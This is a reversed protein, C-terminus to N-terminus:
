YLKIFSCNVGANETNDEWYLNNDYTFFIYGSGNTYHLTESLGGSELYEVTYHTGNTYYIADSLSDYTGHFLWKATSSASNGWSIEITFIRNNYTIHMSCRQSVSDQWNGTFLNVIHEPPIDEAPPAGHTIYDMSVWGYGIYGWESTGVQQLNTVVVETKEGLRDVIDYHTGPGSRVNLGGCGIAVYGEIYAHEGSEPESYVPETTESTSFSIQPIPKVSPDGFFRYHDRTTGKRMTFYYRTSDEPVNYVSIASVPINPALDLYFANGDLTFEDGFYMGYKRGLSDYFQYDDMSFTIPEKTINEIELHFVVYKTGKQANDISGDCEFAYTEQSDTVKIKITALTIETGKEVDHWVPEEATPPESSESKEPSGSDTMMETFRYFNCTIVNLLDSNIEKIKWSGSKEVLELAVTTEEWVPTYSEAEEELIDAFAEAALEEDAGSLALYMAQPIFAKYADLYIPMCDPYRYTVLVTATDDNHSISGIKYTIDGTYTRIFDFAAQAMPNDESSAYFSGGSDDLFSQIEDIDLKQISRCFDKTVSKIQSKSSCGSFLGGLLLFCLLIAFIRKM